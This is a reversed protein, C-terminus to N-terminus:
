YQKYSYIRKLPTKIWGGGLMVGADVWFVLAVQWRNMGM